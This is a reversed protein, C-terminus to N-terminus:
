IKVGYDIVIGLTLYHAPLENDKILLSLTDGSNLPMETVSIEGRGRLIHLDEYLMSDNLLLDCYLSNGEKLSYYISVIKPSIDNPLCPFIDPLRLREGSQLNIVGDYTFHCIRQLRVKKESPMLAQAPVYKKSYSDSSDEILLVDEPEIEPKSEFTIFDGSLRNLQRLNDVNTLGIQEKTVNHLNNTDTLHLTLNPNKYEYVMDHHHEVDAKSDLADALDSQSSLVGTIEGWKSIIEVEESQPYPIYRIPM